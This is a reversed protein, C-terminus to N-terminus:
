DNSTFCIRQDEAFSERVDLNPDLDTFKGPIRPVSRISIKTQLDTPEDKPGYTALRVAQNEAETIINLVPFKALGRMCPDM